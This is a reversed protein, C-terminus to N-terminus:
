VLLGRGITFKTHPPKIADGARIVVAHLLEQVALVGIGELRDCAARDDPSTWRWVQHCKFDVVAALISSQALTQADEDSLIDVDREM